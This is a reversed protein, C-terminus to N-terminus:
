DNSWIDFDLLNSHLCNASLTNIVVLINIWCKVSHIQKVPVDENKSLLPKAAM